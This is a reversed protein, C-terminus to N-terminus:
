ADPHADDQKASRWMWAAVALGAAWIGFMVILPIAPPEPHRFPGSRLAGGAAIGFAIALAGTAVAPLRRRIRVWSAHSRAAEAAKAAAKAADKERM